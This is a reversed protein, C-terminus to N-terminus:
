KDHNILQNNIIKFINNNNCNIIFNKIWKESNRNKNSSLYKKIKASSKLINNDLVLLNAEKHIENAYGYKTDFIAVKGNYLISKILAGEIPASWLSPVIVLKAHSVYKRLKNQWDCKIFILNNPLKYADYYKNFQALSDPVLFNYEPLSSALRIFYLIGKPEVINGHYVIDFDEKNDPHISNRSINSFEGTNLGVVKIKVDSGFHLKLLKEQNLNQALFFIKKSQIKLKRLYSINKSKKISKNPFPRCIELCSDLSNLCRLCEIKKNKNYNYSEICFFSNDLVYLFVKNKKLLSFLKNYGTIQPHIFLVVSNRIFFIKWYFIIENIVKLFFDIIKNVETYKFFNKSVIIFDHKKANKFLYSVLYGAGSNNPNVGTVLYKNM